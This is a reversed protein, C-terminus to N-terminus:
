PRPVLNVTYDQWACATAVRLTTAGPAAAVLAYQGPKGDQYIPLVDLLAPDGSTLKASVCGNEFSNAPECSDACRTGLAVGVSLTIEFVDVTKGDVYETNRIVATSAPPPKTIAAIEVWPAPDPDPCGGLALPALLIALRRM